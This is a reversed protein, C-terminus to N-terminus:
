PVGPQPAHVNRRIQVAIVLSAALTLAGTAVHIVTVVVVPPTNANAMMQMSIVATGILVQTFTFTMLVIAAPRLSHHKPFQQLVFMGLILTMLAVVMAGLIHWMVGLAKHRFAAGLLVQILVLSPTIVALSRLSPWGHDVVPEPGAQFSRSTFVALLVTGAFILQALGALAVGASGPFSKLLTQVGLAGQLAFAALVTWALRCVWTRKDVFSLGIAFGLALLGAVSGEVAHAQQSFVGTTMIPAPAEEHSSTVAAGTIILFLTFAALLVAYRHM